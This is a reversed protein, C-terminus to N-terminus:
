GKYISQGYYFLGKTNRYLTNGRELGIVDYEQGQYQYVDSESDRTDM